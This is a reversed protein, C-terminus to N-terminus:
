PNEEQIHDDQNLWQIMAPTLDNGPNHESVLSELSPFDKALEEVAKDSRILISNVEEELGVQPIGARVEQIKRSLM